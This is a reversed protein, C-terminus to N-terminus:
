DLVYYAMTEGSFGFAAYFAHAEQNDTETAVWVAEAGRARGWEILAGVLRTAVGRRKFSPTVGLNDIYLDPPEDPQWHLVGRAQGVVEGNAIAVLLAHNPAALYQAIRAQDPTADFVDIAIRDLCSATAPTVLCIEVTM